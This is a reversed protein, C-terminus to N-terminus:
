EFYGEEYFGHEQLYGVAENVDAEVVEVEVEDITVIDEDM